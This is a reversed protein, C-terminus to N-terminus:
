KAPYLPPAPNYALWLVGYLSLLMAAVLLVGGVITIRRAPSM